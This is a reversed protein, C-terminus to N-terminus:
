LDIMIKSLVLSFFGLVLFVDRCVACFSSVSQKYETVVDNEEMIEKYAHIKLQTDRPSIIEGTKADYSISSSSVVAMLAGNLEGLHLKYFNLRKISLILKLRIYGFIISCFFCLISILEGTNQTIGLLQPAYDKGIYSFLAIAVGLIFYDFKQDASSIEKFVEVSRNEM